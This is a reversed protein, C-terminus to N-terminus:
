HCGTVTSSLMASSLKERLGEQWWPAQGRLLVALLNLAGVYNLSCSSLVAQNITKNTLIFFLILLHFNSAFSKPPKIQVPDM